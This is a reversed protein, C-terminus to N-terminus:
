HFTVSLSPALTREEGCEAATRSSRCRWRRAISYGPATFGLICTIEFGGSRQLRSIHEYLGSLSPKDQIALIKNRAKLARGSKACLPGPATAGFVLQLSVAPCLGRRVDPPVATGISETCRSPPLVQFRIAGRPVDTALSGGVKFRKIDSATRSTVPIEGAQISELEAEKGV